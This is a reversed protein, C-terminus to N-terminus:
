QCNVWHFWKGRSCYITYPKGIEASYYDNISVDYSNYKGNKELVITWKEPSSSSIAVPVAKGDPSIGFGASSSSSAPTHTKEIVVGDVYVLETPQFLFAAGWGVIVLLILTFFIEGSHESIWLQVDEIM